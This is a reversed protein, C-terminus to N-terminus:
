PDRENRQNYYPPALIAYMCVPTYGHPPLSPGLPEVSAKDVLSNRRESLFGISKRKDSSGLQWRSETSLWNRCIKLGCVVPLSAEDSTHGPFIGRGCEPM